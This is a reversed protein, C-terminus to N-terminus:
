APRTGKCAPARQCSWFRLGEAHGGAAVRLDMVSGCRPCQPPTKPRPLSPSRDPALAPREPVFSTTLERTNPEELAAEALAPLTALLAAGDILEVPKGRAYAIAQADFVGCTLIKCGAAGDEQSFRFLDRVQAVGVRAHRWDRYRIWTREGRRRLLLDSSRANMGDREISYGLARLAGILRKRFEEEDLRRLSELVPSAIGGRRRGGRLFDILGM